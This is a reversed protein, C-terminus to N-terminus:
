EKIQRIVLGLSTQLNEAISDILSREAGTGRINDTTTLANLLLDALDAFMRKDENHVDPIIKEVAGFYFKSPKPTSGKSLFFLEKISDIYDSINEQVRDVLLHKSYFAEGKANYHIDKCYGQIAMLQIILDNIQEM